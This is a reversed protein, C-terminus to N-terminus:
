KSDNTKETKKKFLFAVSSLPPRKLGSRGDLGTNTGPIKFFLIANKSFKRLCYTFHMCIDVFTTLYFNYEIKKFIISSGIEFHTNIM